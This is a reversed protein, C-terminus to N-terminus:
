SVTTEANPFRLLLVLAIGTISGAMVGTMFIGPLLAMGTTWAVISIVVWWGSWLLKRRLVVWQATGTTVGIVLGAIIDMGDFGGFLIILAGLVWGLSTAIVWSWIKILYKQLVFGQLIGLAIGVIIFALNPFLFRGVVWGITTAMIWKFFLTWDLSLFTSM